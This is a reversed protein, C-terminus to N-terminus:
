TLLTTLSSPHNPQLTTHDPNLFFCGVLLFPWLEPAWCPQNHCLTPNVCPWSSSSFVYGMRHVSRGVPASTPAPESQGELLARIVHASKWAGLPKVTNKQLDEDL